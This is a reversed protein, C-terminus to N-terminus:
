KEVIWDRGSQKSSTLGKTDSTTRYIAPKEIDEIKTGHYV